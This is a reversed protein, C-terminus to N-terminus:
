SPALSKGNLFPHYTRTKLTQRQRPGEQPEQPLELEPSPSHYSVPSQPPSSRTPTPSDLRIDSVNSKVRHRDARPHVTRVHNTRGSEGRFTQPCGIFPCRLIHVGRRHRSGRPMSVQRQIYHFSKSTLRFVHSTLLFFFLRCGPQADVDIM